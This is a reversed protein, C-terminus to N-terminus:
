EDVDEAGTSGDFDVKFEQKGYRDCALNFYAIYERQEEGTFGNREAIRRWFRHWGAFTYRQCGVAFKNAACMYAAFRTGQIYLPSKGWANGYVQADGYVRANGSVQADGSVRANGSVWADGSVRADGHVWADGSVWSSDENSLNEEKEIWGGLDGIDVGYREINVLARIRHLTVGGVRKTEATLEYKKM